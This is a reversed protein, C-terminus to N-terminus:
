ARGENSAILVTHSPYRPNGRKSIPDPGFVDAPTHKTAPLAAEQITIEIFADHWTVNFRSVHVKSPVSIEM